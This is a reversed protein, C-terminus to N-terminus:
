LWGRASLTRSLSQKIFDVAKHEGQDEVYVAFTLGDEVHNTERNRLIATFLFVSSYLEEEGKRIEKRFPTGTKGYFELSHKYDVREKLDQLLPDLDAATGGPECVAEMGQLLAGHVDANLGLDSSEMSEQLTNGDETIRELFRAQVRRNTVLRSTAEALKINNWRNTAGGFLISIFDLRFDINLNFGFNVTQPMISYFAPYLDPRQQLGLRAFLLNWPEPSFFEGSADSYKRKVDFLRELNLALESSELNTCELAGGAGQSVFYGLDPRRDLIDNGWYIKGHSQDISDGTLAVGHFLPAEKSAAGASDKALSLVMLIAHYRNSSKAIYSRFDTTGSEGVYPSHRLLKYGEKLEYGLLNKEDGAPYPDIQLELLDPYNQTAAAALFIKTSSGVPHLKLNENVDERRNSVSAIALVKGSTTEMITCSARMPDRSLQRAYNDLATQTLGSLDEDLALHLSFDARKESKEKRVASEIGGTLATILQFSNDLNTRNMRGNLVNVFSLPKQSFDHFLFEEHENREFNIQVLDGEELRQEMGKPISHGNISCSNGSYSKLVINDGMAYVDALRNGARGKVAIGFGIQFLNGRGYVVDRFESQGAKASVRDELSPRYLKLTRRSNWLYAYGDSSQSYIRGWWNWDSALPSEIRHRYINVSQLRGRDILFVDSDGQNFADIDEKLWSKTLFAEEEPELKATRILPRYANGTREPEYTIKGKRILANVKDIYGQPQYFDDIPRIQFSLFQWLGFLLFILFAIGTGRLFYQSSNM